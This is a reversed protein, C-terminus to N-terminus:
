DKLQKPLITHMWKIIFAYLKDIPLRLYWGKRCANKLICNIDKIKKEKKFIFIFIFSSMHFCGCQGRRWNECIGDSHDFRKVGIGRQRGERESEAQKWIKIECEWKFNLFFAWQELWQRDSLATDSKWSMPARGLIMHAELRQSDTRQTGPYDAIWKM